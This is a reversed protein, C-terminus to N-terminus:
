ASSVVLNKKSQCIYFCQLKFELLSKSDHGVRYIAYLHSANFDCRSGNHHDQQRATLRQVRLKADSFKNEPLFSYSKGGVHHLSRM